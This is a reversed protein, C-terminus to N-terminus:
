LEKEERWFDVMAETEAQGVLRGLTKLRGQPTPDDSSMRVNGKEDWREIPQSLIDLAFAAIATPSSSAPANTPGRMAQAMDHLNDFTDSLVNATFGQMPQRLTCLQMLDRSTTQSRTPDPKPNAYKAAHSQLLTPLTDVGHLPLIPIRPLDAQNMMEAQLTAFALTGDVGDTGPEAASGTFHKASQFSTNRPPKLLFVIASPEATLFSFHQIRELTAELTGDAVTSPSLLLFRLHRTPKSVGTRADTEVTIPVAIDHTHLLQERVDYKAHALLM